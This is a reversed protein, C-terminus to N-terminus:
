QEFYLPHVRTASPRCVLIGSFRLTRTFQNCTMSAKGYSAGTREQIDELSEQSWRQGNEIQKEKRRVNRLRLVEQDKEAQTWKRNLLEGYFKSPGQRKPRSPSSRSTGGGYFQATRSDKYIPNCDLFTNESAIWDFFLESHNLRERRRSFGCTASRNEWIARRDLIRDPIDGTSSKAHVCFLQRKKREENEDKSRKKSEQACSFVGKYFKKNKAFDAYSLKQEKKRRKQQGVHM